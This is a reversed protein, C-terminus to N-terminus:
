RRPARPESLTALRIKRGGVDELAGLNRTLALRIKRGGSTSCTQLKEPPVAPVVVLCQTSPASEAPGSERKKKWRAEAAAKCIESRTRPGTAGDAGSGSAIKPAPRKRTRPRRAAHPEVSAPLTAAEERPAGCDEELAFEAEDGLNDVDLTSLLGEHPVVESDSLEDLGPLTDLLSM